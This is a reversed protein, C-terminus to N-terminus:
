YQFRRNDKSIMDKNLLAANNCIATASRDLALTHLRDSLPVATEFGALPM